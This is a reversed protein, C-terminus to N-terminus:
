FLVNLEELVFFGSVMNKIVIYFVVHAILGKFLLDKIRKIVKWFEHFIAKGNLLESQCLNLM